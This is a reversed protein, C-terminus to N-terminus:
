VASSWEGPVFRYGDGQKVVYGNAPFPFHYGTVRMRDAAARDLLKRRSAEAQAGDFDFVAHWGPNRLFLEPRNAADCIVLLQGDGDAVLFSMHGPTHGPSAVARVGPALEANDEYRRIRAQYPAFRRRTNPFNGRQGEIVRGVNSEDTWFTWEVTPVAIEAKPFVVADNEGLLGSIHDAHFHSIVVLDVQAPDIGAAALNARLTGSTPNMGIGTGTDFAILARPTRLFTINFPIPMPRVPLFAEQAAAEVAADPANRVLGSAPRAWFGDNVVVAEFAGVKFRYFGPAQPPGAPAAAPAGGGGYQARAATGPLALLGAAAGAALLSHRRTAALRSLPNPIM